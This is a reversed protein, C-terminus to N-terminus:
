RVICTNTIQGHYLAMVGISIASGHNKKFLSFVNFMFLMGARNAVSQNFAGLHLCVTTHSQWQIFILNRVKCHVPSVLIARGNNFVNNTSHRLRETPSFSICKHKNIQYKFSAAHFRTQCYTIYQQQTVCAEVGGKQFKKNCYKM